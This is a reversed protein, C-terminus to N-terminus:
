PRACARVCDAVTALYKWSGEHRQNASSAHWTGRAHMPVAYRKWLNRDCRTEDGFRYQSRSFGAM